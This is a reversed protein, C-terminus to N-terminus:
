LYSFLTCCRVLGPPAAHGGSGYRACVAVTTQISPVCDPLLGPFILLFDNFLDLWFWGLVTTEGSVM